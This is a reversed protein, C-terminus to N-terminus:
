YNTDVLPLARRPPHDQPDRKRAQDVLPQWLSCEVARDNARKPEVAPLEGRAPRLVAAREHRQADVVVQAARAVRELHQAVHRKGSERQVRGRASGHGPHDHRHRAAHVGRDGGRQEDIGPPIDLRQEHGVPGLVVVAVARGCGVELVGPRDRLFEAYRQVLHAESRLVARAHEIMEQGFERSATRRIGIHEAIALHLEADAELIRAPQAGLAKRGPVICADIAAPQQAADVAALVLAVEQVCEIGCLENVALKRDAAEGLRLHPADGALAPQWDGVLAIRGSDAEYALPGETIKDPAPQGPPRARDLGFMACHDPPVAAKLAVREALAAPEADAAALAAAIRGPEDGALVERAVREHHHLAGIVGQQVAAAERRRRRVPDAAVRGSRLECAGRFHAVALRVDVAPHRGARAADFHREGCREGARRGALVDNEVVALLADAPGSYHGKV